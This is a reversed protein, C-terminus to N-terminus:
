YAIDGVEYTNKRPGNESLARPLDGYKERRFLDNMSVSLPLVSLFDKATANDALGATLIKGGININIKMNHSKESFARQPSSTSATHAKSQDPVLSMALVLAALILTKAKSM